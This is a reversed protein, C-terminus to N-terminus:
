TGVRAQDLPGAARLTETAALRGTLGSVEPPAPLTLPPSRPRPGAGARGHRGALGAAAAAVAAACAAIRGGADARLAALERGSAVAAATRERLRGIRGTDVQGGLWLALPDTNLVDRLQAHDTRRWPSRRTSRTTTWGASSSGRPPSSTGIQQLQDAAENWVAEAATVM